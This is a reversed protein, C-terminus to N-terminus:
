FNQRGLLARALTGGDIYDLSSGVPVGMALRTVSVDACQLEDKLFLSTADGELTSDLALLVDKIQLSHIRQKIEDIKLHEPFRGDIPSILGGTVHYLGKYVKTDEIAYVDKASSVVCLQSGDRKQLNCFPCETEEMLCHCIQCSLINKKLESLLSSLDQLEADKWDLLHFAFREATKSGVGPFKKLYSILTTLHAPYRAM